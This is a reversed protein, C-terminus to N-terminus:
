TPTVTRGSDRLSSFLSCLESADQQSCVVGAFCDWGVRQAQYPCDECRLLGGSWESGNIWEPWGISLLVLLFSLLESTLVGVKSWKRVPTEINEAYSNRHWYLGCASITAIINTVFGAIATRFGSQLCGDNACYNRMGIRWSLVAALDLSGQLGALTYLTFAPGSDQLSILACLPQVMLAFLLLSCGELV